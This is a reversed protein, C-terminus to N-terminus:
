TLMIKQIEIPFLDLRKVTLLCGLYKMQVLALLKGDAASMVFVVSEGDTSIRPDSVSKFKKMDNESAVKFNVM